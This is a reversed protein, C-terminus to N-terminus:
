AECNYNIFEGPHNVKANAARSSVGKRLTVGTDNLILRTDTDTYTYSLTNTLYADHYFPFSVPLHAPLSVFAYLGGEVTRIDFEDKRQNNEYALEWPRFPYRGVLRVRRFRNTDNRALFLHQTALTM